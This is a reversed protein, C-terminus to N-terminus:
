AVGRALALAAKAHEVEDRFGVLGGGRAEVKETMLQLANVLAAHSNCARVIFAANDAATPASSYSMTYASALFLGDATEIDRGNATWPTPTHKTSM